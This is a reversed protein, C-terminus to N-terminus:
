IIGPITVNNAISPITSNLSASQFSVVILDGISELVKFLIPSIIFAAILFILPKRQRELDIKKDLRDRQEKFAEYYSKAIRILEEEDHSKSIQQMSEITHNMIKQMIDMQHCRPLLIPDDECTKKIVVMVSQEIAEKTMPSLKGTEKLYEDIKTKEIDIGNKLTTKEFSIKDLFAELKSFYNFHTPFMFIEMLEEIYKEQIDLLEENKRKSRYWGILYPVLNFITIFAMFTVLLPSVQLSFSGDQLRIPRALGEIFQSNIFLTLSSVSLYFYLTFVAIGGISSIFTMNRADNDLYESLMPAFITDFATVFGIVLYWILTTGLIISYLQQEDINGYRVYIYLPALLLIYSLLALIGSSLMNISSHSVNFRLSNYFSRMFAEKPKKTFMKALETLIPRVNAALLLLLFVRIEFQGTLIKTIIFIFAIGLLTFFEDIVFNGELRRTIFYKNKYQLHFNIVIYIISVLIYVIVNTIAM